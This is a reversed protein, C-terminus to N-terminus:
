VEVCTFCSKVHPVMLILDAKQWKLLLNDFFLYKWYQQVSKILWCTCLMKRVVNQNILFQCGDFYKGFIQYHQMLKIDLQMENFM